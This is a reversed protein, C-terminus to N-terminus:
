RGRRGKGVRFEIDRNKEGMGGMQGMSSIPCPSCHDEANYCRWCLVSVFIPLFRPAVSFLCIDTLNSSFLYTLLNIPQDVSFEDAVIKIIM